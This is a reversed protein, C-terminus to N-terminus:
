GWGWCLALCTSWHQLEDATSSFIVAFYGM